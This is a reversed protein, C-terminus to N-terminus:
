EVKIIEFPLSCLRNIIYFERGNRDIEMVDSQWKFKSSSYSIREAKIILKPVAIPPDLPTISETQLTHKGFQIEKSSPESTKDLSKPKNM